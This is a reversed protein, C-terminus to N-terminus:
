YIYGCRQKSGKTDLLKQRFLWQLYISVFLLELTCILIAGSAFWFSGNKKVEDYKAERIVNITGIILLLFFIGDMFTLLGNFFCKDLRRSSGDRLKQPCFPLLWLALWLLVLFINFLIAVTM